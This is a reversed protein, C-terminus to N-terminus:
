TRPHRFEDLSGALADCVEQVEGETMQNFFPLALARSALYDTVPLEPARGLRRLVPQRHLPAFYRGTGIGKRLLSRAIWDRRARNVEEGFKVVYCFWSIRGGEIQTQPGTVGDLDRLKRGYMEALAQRRGITSEIRSLQEIGLACNMESLRYSFGAETQQYWDLAPDRGQNRLRRAREAVSRDRTLFVGGEGTTVQKNPYFGLAGSDGFTGVKQNGAETGIAECVDEILAINHRDAIARLRDVELPRGFTHVAIVAKTRKTIAAEIAEPTANFTRADIDVFVPQLREQLIVNLLSIFTFSPLIIESGEPINLIRLALHIASTGSNVAVAFPSRMYASVCHEFELLKPGISLYPTRLVGLVADRDAETIEPKALPIRLTM